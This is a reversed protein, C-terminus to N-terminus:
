SLAHGWPGPVSDWIPRGAPLRSRGRGTDRGRERYREHFIIKNNNNNFFQLQPHNNSTLTAAAKPIQGPQTYWEHQGHPLLPSLVTLLSSISQLLFIDSWSAWRRGKKLPAHDMRPTTSKLLDLKCCAVPGWHLRLLEVEGVVILLAGM